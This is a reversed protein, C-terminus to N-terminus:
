RHGSGGSSGSTSRSGGGSGSSVHSAPPPGPAPAPRNYVPPAAAPAPRNVVPAQPSVAPKTPAPTLAPRVVGTVAGSAPGPLSPTRAGSTAPRTPSVEHGSATGDYLPRAVVPRVPRVLHGAITVIESRNPEPLGATGGPPRRNVAVVPNAMAHLRGNVPLPVPRHPPGSVPRRPPRYRGPALGINSLWGGGGWWPQCMGPAWGWGFDNYFNWAGCQFPMYGWPDGSIWIYGFGPTWMWHGNGYPDWGPNSADFPTWVYGQSPVNYWNGNADLDNWAPNNKDPMSNAAGTRATEASMLVQDRDSNWTDWSDPEIVDVVQSQAPDASNLAVSEGGHLDLLFASGGELHANGSFVALEGPPNDLNVRLVTFGSATAVSDGFHVRTQGAAGESHLEFYALGSELDIEADGTGGLVKLTLSSNPSLRVVSGDDFQLEARGDESTLVQTGEFLPTNQLAPDALLQSGQAIRVQGEVFSLRAARGTQAADDARLLPALLATEMALVALALMWGDLRQGVVEGRNM